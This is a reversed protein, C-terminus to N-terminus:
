NYKLSKWYLYSTTITDMSKQMGYRAGLSSVSIDLECSKAMSMGILKM